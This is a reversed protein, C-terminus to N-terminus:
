EIRQELVRETGSEAFRVVAKWVDGKRSPAPGQLWTTKYNSLFPDVYARDYLEGNRYFAVFDIAEPYLSALRIWRQGEYEANPELGQLYLQDEEPLPPLQIGIGEAMRRAFFQDEGRTIRWDTPPEQKTNNNYYGWSVREAYTVSMNGVAQSDENFVIPKQLNWSRMERIMNHIRQRTCGNGHVLIVDSAEAVTRNIYSGGGSCGVPIGSSEERATRLLEAMGEPSQVIPRRQYPGLNHENAPEIIVNSGGVAHLWRSATIVANKVANDDELRVIQNPYFFSAIVVMGIQDAARILREMRNAFAEELRKGDSGFPNVHMVSRNPVTACPGGGQFGVTFARLGHAYWEPLAAILNDTNTEPDFEGRGWKAYRSVDSKDDLVGQIFRANMLLGHAEPRSNEIEAYTPKGNILFTEGQISLATHPM